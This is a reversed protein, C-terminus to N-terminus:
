PQSRVRERARRRFFSPNVTGWLRVANAFTYDRFDCLEYAEPLVDIM